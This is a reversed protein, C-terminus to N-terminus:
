GCHEGNEIAESLEDLLGKLSADHRADLPEATSRMFRVIRAREARAAHTCKFVCYLGDVFDIEPAILGCAVCTLMPVGM